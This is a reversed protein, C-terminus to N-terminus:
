KYVQGGYEKWEKDNGKFEEITWNYYESRGVIDWLEEWDKDTM